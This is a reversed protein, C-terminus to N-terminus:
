ALAEIALKLAGEYSKAGGIFGAAHVFIADSIGSAKALEEDRLGRYKEPLPKRSVFENGRDNVCQVRWAGLSDQCMVYLAKFGQEDELDSLHSKWPCATDFRIILGSSHVEFRKSVADEVVRRAPLWRKANRLVCDVFETGTLMMAELFRDNEEAGVENWEPNLYGVRASMSTSVYYMKTGGEYAQVGNDIGDVHEIFDDYCKNYLVEVEGDSVNGGIEEALLKRIIDKGFHKYVLGASSLKITKKANFTEAFGRQHHDFRLKVPDYVAGVDVVLHAKELLASDRSRLIARDRNEPLVKLMALALAEDCHFHGSHTALCGEPAFKSTLLTAQLTELLTVTQRPRKLPASGSAVALASAM